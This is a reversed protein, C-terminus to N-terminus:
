ATHQPQYPRRITCLSPPSGAISAPVPRNASGTSSESGITSGEPSIRTPGVTLSATTSWVRREIQRPGYLRHGGPSRMSTVLGHQELYRLMRQSWGTTEVAQHMTLPKM